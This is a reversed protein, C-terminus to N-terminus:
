HADPTQIGVRRFFRVAERRGREAARQQATVGNININLDAGLSQLLTLIEVNGFEAAYFVVPIGNGDLMNVDAGNKLLITAVISYGFQLATHLPPLHDRDLGDGDPSWGKALLRQIIGHQGQTAAATMAPCNARTAPDEHAGAELLAEVVSTNGRSAAVYLVPRGSQSLQEPDAGHNLLLRVIATRGMEVAIPLPIHESAGHELLTEVASLHNGRTARMVPTEMNANLPDIELGPLQLVYNLFALNGKEAAKHLLTDNTRPTRENVQAGNELLYIAIDFRELTAAIIVPVRLHEAWYRSEDDPAFGHYDAGNVDVGKQEVLYRVFVLSDDITARTMQWAITHRVNASHNFNQILAM